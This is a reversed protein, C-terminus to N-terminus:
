NSVIQVPVDVMLHSERPIAFPAVAAVAAAMVALAARKMFM